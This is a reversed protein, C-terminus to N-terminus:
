ELSKLCREIGKWNALLMKKVVPVESRAVEKTKVYYDVIKEVIEGYREKTLEDLKGIESAVKKQLAATKKQLDKTLEKGKKSQLFTASAVGIAAGILMGIGIHSTKKSTDAM